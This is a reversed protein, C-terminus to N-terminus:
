AEELDELLPWPWLGDIELWDLVKGQLHLHPIRANVNGIAEVLHGDDRGGIGGDAARVIHGGGGQAEHRFLKSTAGLNHELNLLTARGPIVQQHSSVKEM